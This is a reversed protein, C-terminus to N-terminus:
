VIPLYQFAKSHFINTYKIGIQFINLDNPTNVYHDNPLKTTNKYIKGRKPINNGSFDPLGSKPV